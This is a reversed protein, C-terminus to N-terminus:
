AAIGTISLAAVLPTMWLELAERLTDRRVLSTFVTAQDSLSVMLEMYFPGHTHTARKQTRMELCGKEAEGDVEAAELRVQKPLPM